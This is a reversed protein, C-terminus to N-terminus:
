LYNTHSPSHNNNYSNHLTNTTTTELTPPQVSKGKQQCDYRVLPYDTFENFSFKSNLKIGQLCKVLVQHCHLFELLEMYCHLIGNYNLQLFEGRGWKSSHETVKCSTQKLPTKHFAFIPLFFIFFYHFSHTKYGLVKVIALLTRTTPSVMTSCAPMELTASVTWCYWWQGGKEAM